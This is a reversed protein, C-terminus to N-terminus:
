GDNADGNKNYSWIKVTCDWSSSALMPLYPHWSVDRVPGAHEHEGVSMEDSLIDWIFVGGDASGSYVYRQGTSALPSFDCRILTGAVKHGEYSHVSVDTLFDVIM